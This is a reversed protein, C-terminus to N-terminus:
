TRDEHDGLVVICSEACLPLLSADRKINLVCMNHSSKLAGKECLDHYQGLTLITFTGMSGISNNGEYYSELWVKSDPNTDALAHLLSLPYDKHLNVASFVNAVPDFTSSNHQRLFTSAQHGPQLICEICIVTWTHLLDPLPVGWKKVSVTLITNTFSTTTTKATSDMIKM